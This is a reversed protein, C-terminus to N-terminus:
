RGYINFAFYCPPDACHAMVVEVTFPGTWRPQSTVTAIRETSRDGSILHGSQDYLLMDVDRCTSDCAAVLRFDGGARLTVNFRQARGQALGGSFPGAVRSYGQRELGRGLRALDAALESAEPGPVQGHSVGVPAITAAALIAALRVRM